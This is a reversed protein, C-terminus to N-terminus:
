QYEVLVRIGTQLYPIAEALTTFNQEVSQWGTSTKSYVNFQPATRCPLFSHRSPHALPDDKLFEIAAVGFTHTRKGNQFLIYGLTTHTNPCNQLTVLQM